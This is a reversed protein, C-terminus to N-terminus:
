LILIVFNCFLRHGLPSATKKVVFVDVSLVIVMLITRLNCNGYVYMQLVSSVVVFGFSHNYSRFSLRTAQPISRISRHPPRWEPVSSCITRRLRLPPLSRQRLEHVPRTVSGTIKATDRSSNNKVLGMATLYKLLSRTLVFTSLMIPLCAITVLSISLRCPMPWTVTPPCSHLALVSASPIFKCGPVTTSMTATLPTLSITLTSGWIAFTVSFRDSGCDYSDHLVLVHPFLAYLPYAAYVFTRLLLFFTLM